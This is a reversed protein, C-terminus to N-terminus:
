PNRTAITTSFFMSLQRLPYITRGDSTVIAAPSSFTRARSEARLVLPDLPTMDHALFSSVRSISGSGGGGNIAPSAM